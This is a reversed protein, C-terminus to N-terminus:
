KNILFTARVQNNEYNRCLTQYFEKFDEEFAEISLYLNNDIREFIDDITRVEFYKKFKGHPEPSAKFIIEDKRAYIYYNTKIQFNKNKGINRLINKSDEEELFGKLWKELPSGM